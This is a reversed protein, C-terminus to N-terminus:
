GARRVDAVLWADGVRRLSLRWSVAGRGPERRVVRGAADVVDYAPLRDTVLLTAATPSVAHARVTLLRLRLDGVRLGARVYRRLTATDSALARSGPVYVDRLLAVDGDGYAVSRRRDLEAVRARWSAAPDPAPTRTATTSAAPSESPATRAPPERGAGEWLLAGALVLLPVLAVALLRSRGRVLDAGTSAVRQWRPVAGTSAVPRRLAGPRFPDPSMPVTPSVPGTPPVPGIPPTAGPNVAGPHVMGPHAAGIRVPEARCAGLVKAALAAATGGTAAERLVAVLAHPPYPGVLGSGLEALARVDGERDAGPSMRSPGCLRPRGGADLEIAAATVAGHVAGAAHWRALEGAVSAIVTVVEGPRLSSRAALLTDLRIESM